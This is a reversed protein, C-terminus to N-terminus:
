LEGKDWKNLADVAYRNFVNHSVIVNRGILDEYQDDHKRTDMLIDYDEIHLNVHNDQRSKLIILEDTNKPNFTALTSAVDKIKKSPLGMIIQRKLEERVANIYNEDKAQEFTSIFMRPNEGIVHTSNIELKKGFMDILLLKIPSVDVILYNHTVNTNEVDIKNDDTKSYITFSRIDRVYTDYINIPMGRKFVNLDFGYTPAFM